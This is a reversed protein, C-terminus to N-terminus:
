GASETQGRLTRAKTRGLRVICMQKALRWVPASTKRPSMLSGTTTVTDTQGLSSPPAPLPRRRQFPTQHMTRLRSTAPTASGSQADGSTAALRTRCAALFQQWTQGASSGSAKAAYWQSGCQQMVSQAEAGSSGAALIGALALRAITVGAITRRPHRLWRMPRGEVLHQDFKAEVAFPTTISSSM